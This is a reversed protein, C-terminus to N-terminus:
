WSIYYLINPSRIITDLHSSERDLCSIYGSLDVVQRLTPLNEQCVALSRARGAWMAHTLPTLVSLWSVWWDWKLVLFQWWEQASHTSLVTWTLGGVTCIVHLSFYLSVTRWVTVTKRHWLTVSDCWQMFM